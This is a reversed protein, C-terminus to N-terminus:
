FDRNTTSFNCKTWHSIKSGGSINAVVSGDSDLCTSSVSAAVLRCLIAKRWDFLARYTRIIPIDRPFWSKDINNTFQKRHLLMVLAVMSPVGCADDCSIDSYTKIKKEYIPIRCYFFLQWLVRPRSIQVPRWCLKNRLARHWSRDRYSSIFLLKPSM